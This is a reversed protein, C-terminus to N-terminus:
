SANKDDSEELLGTDGCERARILVPTDIKHGAFPLGVFQLVALCTVYGSANRM